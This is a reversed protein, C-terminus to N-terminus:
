QECGVRVSKNWGQLSVENRSVILFVLVSQGCHDLWECCHKFQHIQLCQYNMCISWVSNFAHVDLTLCTIMTASATRHLKGYSQGASIGALTVWVAVGLRTSQLKM